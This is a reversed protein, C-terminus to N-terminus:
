FGGFFLTYFGLLIAFLPISLLLQILLSYGLLKVPAIGLNAYFLRERGRLIGHIIHAAIPALTIFFFYGWYVGFILTLLLGLGFSILSIGKYYYWYIM